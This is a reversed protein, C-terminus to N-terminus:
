VAYTDEGYYARFVDEVNSERSIWDIVRFQGAAKILHDPDGKVTCRLVMGRRDMSLDELNPIWNFADLPVREAFRIEMKRLQHAKFQIVREVSLLQGGRMVALRDGVREVSQPSRTAWIISCGEARLDYVLGYFAQRAALDLATDPEDLLILEPRHMCAQVLNLKQLDSDNLKRVPLDLDLELRSTLQRATDWDFDAHCSGLFLLFQAITQRPNAHFCAPAYGIRRRVLPDPRRTDHGLLYLDGSDFRALGALVRLLTTKGAGLPGLLGFVEGPEVDLSIGDLARTPNGFLARGRPRGVPARWTRYIKTLNETRVVLYRM